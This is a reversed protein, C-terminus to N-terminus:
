INKSYLIKTRERSVESSQFRNFSIDSMGRIVPHLWMNSKKGMKQQRSPNTKISKEHAWSNGSTFGTQLQKVLHSKSHKAAGTVHKLEKTKGNLSSDFLSSSEQQNRTVEQSDSDWCANCHGALQQHGWPHSARGTAYTQRTGSRFSTKAPSPPCLSAWIWAPKQRSCHWIHDSKNNHSWFESLM